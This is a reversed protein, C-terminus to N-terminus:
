GAVQLAGHLRVQCTVVPQLKSPQQMQLLLLTVPHCCSVAHSHGLMFSALDGVAVTVTTYTCASFAGGWMEGLYCDHPGRSKRSFARSDGHGSFFVQMFACCLCVHATTSNLTIHQQLWFWLQTCAV